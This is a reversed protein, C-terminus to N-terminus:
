PTVGSRLLPAGLAKLLISLRGLPLGVVNFFDGRIEDIFLAAKGQIAYAGAKDRYEETELYAEIEADDLPRFRVVTEECAEREEQTATKLLYLGTLVIHERGSLRKLMRRAHERSDPKGLIEGDVLVLTDAGIILGQEHKAVALVKKRALAVVRAEPPGTEQEEVYSPVVRLDPVFRSLLEVRRPSASALIIKM